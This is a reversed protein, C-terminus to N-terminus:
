FITSLCYFKGICKFTLGRKKTLTFVHVTVSQSVFSQHDSTDPINKNKIENKPNLLTLFVSFSVSLCSPHCTLLIMLNHFQTLCQFSQLDTSIHPTHHLTVTFSNFCFFFWCFFFCLTCDVATGVPVQSVEPAEMVFGTRARVIM